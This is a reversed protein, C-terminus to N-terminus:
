SRGTSLPTEPPEMSGGGGGTHERKRYIGETVLLIPASESEKDFHLLGKLYFANPVGSGVTHM